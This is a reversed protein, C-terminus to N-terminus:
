VQLSRYFTGVVFVSASARMLEDAFSVSQVKFLTVLRFAAGGSGNNNHYKLCGVLHFFRMPLM